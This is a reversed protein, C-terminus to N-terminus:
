VLIIFLDLYGQKKTDSESFHKSINGLCFPDDNIESDKATFDTIKESNAFIHSNKGNYHLSLVVSNKTKSINTKGYSAFVNIIEKNFKINGQGIALINDDKQSDVGFAVANYPFSNDTHKFEYDTYFAFGYGSLVQGNFDTNVSGFLCNKLKPDFSSSSADLHYVIYANLM